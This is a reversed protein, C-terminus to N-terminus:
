CFMIIALHDATALLKYPLAASSVLPSSPFAFTLLFGFGTCCHPILFFQSIRFSPKIPFLGVASCCVRAPCFHDGIICKEGLFLKGIPIPPQDAVTVDGSHVVDSGFHNSSSRAYWSAAPFMQLAM